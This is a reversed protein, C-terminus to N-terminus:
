EPMIGMARLQAALREARQHEQEAEREAREARQAEAEARQAEAEARQAEAEALTLVVHENEYFRLWNTRVRLYEGIWVGIWLNLQASWLRGQADPAIEEYGNDILLRWGWLSCDSPDYCFYEPTRFTNAYLDKKLGLDTTITSPSALEVIVNPYRGDENWIVWADRDHTGDVDKVVFFDPGRYHKRRVQEMSYYIFMNGGVFYDTRTRWHAHLADILLNMQIRHWNSEMPVGDDTPLVLESLRLMEAEIKPDFWGEPLLGYDLTSQQPIQTQAVAM